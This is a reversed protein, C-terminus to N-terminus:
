RCLAGDEAAIGLNSMVKTFNNLTDYRSIASSLQGTIMSFIKTVLGFKLLSNFFSTSASTASKMKSSIGTVASSIKNGSNVFDDGAKTANKFTQSIKDELKLTGSVTM